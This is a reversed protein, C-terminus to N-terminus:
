KLERAAVHEEEGRTASKAGWEAWASARSGAYAAETALERILALDISGGNSFREKLTSRLLALMGDDNAYEGIVLVAGITDNSDPKGLMQLLATKFGENCVKVDKENRRCSELGDHGLEPTHLASRQSLVGCEEDWFAAALSQRTYDLTLIVQAPDAHYRPDEPLIYPDSCRGQLDLAPVLQHAVHDLRKWNFVRVKSLAAQVDRLAVEHNITKLDSASVAISNISSDLTSGAAAVLAQIIPALASQPKTVRKLPWYKQCIQQSFLCYKSSIIDGTPEENQGLMYTKYRESGEIKAIDLYAGDRLRASITAYGSSLSIGLGTDFDMAALGGGLVSSLLLSHYCIRM